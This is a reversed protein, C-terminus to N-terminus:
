FVTRGPAPSSGCSVPPAGSLELPGCSPFGRSTGAGRPVRTRTGRVDVADRVDATDRLHRPIGCPDGGSGPGGRDGRAPADDHHGGAAPRDVISGRGGRTACGAPGSLTLTWVGGPDTAALVAPRLLASMDVTQPVGDGCTLTVTGTGDAPVTCGVSAGADGRFEFSGILDGTGSFATPTPAPPAGSASPAGPVESGGPVSGAAPSQPASPEAGPAGSEAGAAPASPDTGDAGSAPVDSELAGVPLGGDEVSRQEVAPAAAPNHAAALGNRETDDETEAAFPTNLSAPTPLPETLPPLGSLDLSGGAPLEVLLGTLFNLM